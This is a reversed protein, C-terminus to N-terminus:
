YKKAGFVNYDFTFQIDVSSEKYEVPLPKFPATLKVAALAAKDASALGSSKSVSVNLLRGDRAIKFLLVVRRSEEGKPPDWNRKISRQLERMYPGFDPERIADIGPRGNPNGPGPNGVNGRGVGSGVGTGSGNGSTRGGTKGGIGSGTSPAFSLANGSTSGYKGTGSGGVGTGSPKAIPGSGSPTGINPINTKPVPFTFDTKPQQAVKPAAPKIGPRPAPTPAQSRAPAPQNNTKPQKEATSPQAIKQAKPQQMKPQQPKPKQAKPKSTQAPSGGAKPMSVKRKPNHKGGARSNRDSRYRTNKNIPTQEKDVLVFEIDKPKAEPKNFVVFSIGLLGAIFIFLWILFVALPHIATSVFISKTLSMENKDYRFVAPIKYNLEQENEKQIYKGLISM